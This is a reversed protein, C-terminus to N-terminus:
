GTWRMRNRERSPMVPADISKLEDDSFQRHKVLELRTGKIVKLLYDAYETSVCAPATIAANLVIWGGKSHGVLLAKGIGLADLIETTWRAIDTEARFEPAAESKGPDNITDVLYLRVHEGLHAVDCRESPAHTRVTTDRCLRPM